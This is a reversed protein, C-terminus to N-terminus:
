PFCPGGQMHHLGWDNEEDDGLYISSNIKAKKPYIYSCDSGTALYLPYDTTAKAILFRTLRVAYIEAKSRNMDMVRILADADVATANDTNKTSVANNMFKYLLEPSGDTLCYKIMCPQIYDTLLTKYADYGALSADATIKDMLDNYLATGLLPLIREEQVDNIIPHLVKVDVNENIVSSSKLTDESLFFARVM